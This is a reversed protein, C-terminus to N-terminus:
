RTTALFFASAISISVLAVVGTTVTVFSDWVAVSLRGEVAARPTLTEAAADNLGARAPRGTIRWASLPAVQTSTDAPVCLVVPVAFRGTGVFWTPVVAYRATVVPYRPAASAVEAVLVM